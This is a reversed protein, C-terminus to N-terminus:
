DMMGDGGTGSQSINNMMREREVRLREIEREWEADQEGARQVEADFGQLVQGLAGEFSAWHAQTTFQIASDRMDLALRFRELAGRQQSLSRALSVAYPGTTAIAPHTSALTSLIASHASLFAFLVSCITSADPIEFVEDEFTLDMTSNRLLANIRQMLKLVAPANELFTDETLCGFAEADDVFYDLESKLLETAGCMDDLNAKLPAFSNYSAFAPTVMHTPDPFM